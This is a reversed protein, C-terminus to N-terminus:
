KLDESTLNFFHKIWIESNNLSKDSSGGKMIKVWKVAEAKLAIKILEDDAGILKEFDLDKLTKLKGQTYKEKIERNRVIDKLEKRIRGRVM